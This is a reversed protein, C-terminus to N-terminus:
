LLFNVLKPLAPRAGDKRTIGQCKGELQRFPRFVRQKIPLSGWITTVWMQNGLQNKIPWKIIGNLSM